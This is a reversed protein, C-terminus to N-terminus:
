LTECSEEMRKGDQSTSYEVSFSVFLLFLLRKTKFFDFRSQKEIVFDGVRCV